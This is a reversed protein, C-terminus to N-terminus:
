VLVKFVWSSPPACRLPALTSPGPHLRRRGRWVRGRGGRPAGWGQHSPPPCGPGVWGRRVGRGPAAPSGCAPSDRRGPLPPPFSGRLGCLGQTPTLCPLFGLSPAHRPSTGLPPRRWGHAQLPATSATAANVRKKWKRLPICDCTGKIGHLEASNVFKADPEPHPDAGRGRGVGRERLGPRRPGPPGQSTEM